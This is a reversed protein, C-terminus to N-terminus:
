ELFDKYDTESMLDNLEGPNSLKIKIIWGDEEPSTNILGPTSELNDNTAIVQGSVPMIMDSAAKVSEVSGFVDGEEFEEDVEPVECFVVEGLEKQAHDSVGVVAVNDTVKIWEHDKSYYLDLNRSTFHFSRAPGSWLPLVKSHSVKTTWSRSCIPLAKTILGTLKTCSM